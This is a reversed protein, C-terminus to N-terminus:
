VRPVPAASAQISAVVYSLLWFKGSRYPKNVLAQLFGFQFREIFDLVGMVTQQGPNDSADGRGDSALKAASTTGGAVLLRGGDGTLDRHTPQNISHASLRSANRKLDGSRSLRQTKM